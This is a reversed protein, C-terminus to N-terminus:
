NSEKIGNCGAAKPLVIRFMTGENQTSTVSIVGGLIKVMKEVISLGVGTGPIDRKAPTKERWLPKFIKSINEPAIGLGDDGVELLVSNDEPKVTLSVKGEPRNYKVANCLLNSIIMSLEGPTAAVEAPSVDFSIKVRSKDATEQIQEVCDLAVKAVDTRLTEDRSRDACDLAVLDDIVHRMQELRATCRDLIVQLDQPNFDDARSKKKLIYLYGEIVSLPSKLEHAMMHALGINLDGGNKEFNDNM